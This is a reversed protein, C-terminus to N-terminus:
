CFGHIIETIGVKQVATYLIRIYKWYNLLDKMFIDVKFKM